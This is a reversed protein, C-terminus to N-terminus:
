LNIAALSDAEVFTDAQALVDEINLSNYIRLQGDITLLCVM